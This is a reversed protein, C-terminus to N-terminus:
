VVASIDTLESISRLLSQDLLRTKDTRDYWAPEGQEWASEARSWGLIEVRRFMPGFAYACVVIRSNDVDRRRVVLPKDRERVRRVEIDPYVDPRERQSYHQSSDWAAGDWYCCTVRAVAIECCAAAVSARDNDEMLEKRYHPADAKGKNAANRRLGVSYAWQMEWDELDVIM